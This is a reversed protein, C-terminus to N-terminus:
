SPFIKGGCTFGSKEKTIRLMQNPLCSAKDGENLYGMSVGQCDLRCMADKSGYQMYVSLCKGTLGNTTCSENASYSQLYFSPDCKTAGSVDTIENATLILM